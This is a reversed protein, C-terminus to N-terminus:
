YAEDSVEVFDKRLHLPIGTGTFPSSHLSEFFEISRGALAPNDPLRMRASASFPEALVFPSIM